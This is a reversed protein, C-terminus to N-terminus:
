PSTRSPRPTTASTGARPPRSSRPTSGSRRPTPSCGSACTSPKARARRDGVAGLRALLLLDPLDGGRGEARRRDIETRYRLVLGNETLEEKIARVTARCANTTPPCSASCRCSCRRPTSRTPTTTSASSAGSSRRRERPHGAKIEDALAQWPRCAGGLGRREALRAGRDLAVWCMLKSSVYHARSAARRGSARTPSAGSGRRRMRGPGRAGAVAARPHPRPEQLAPLRLGAGGRLRREPAPRYAGNGVRVPRAIRRLGQPPRAHAGRPREPRTVGTCSRCRATATATSTPSTSCSTTRRGTSVSPTCRGCRSRRTACGASATTGTANAARADGAALHDPRGRAGRDAHFHAGEAHAGLAAPLLAVPPRPLDGDALWNRWFHATRDLHGQAQEVTHPGGLGETWSLACFRREGETMTHRGHARNGEIGIRIDSFLRFAVGHERPTGPQPRATGPQTSARGPRVTPTSRACARRAPRSWRGARRADRRLRADARLRDRGAGDGPHMRGGARAPPRRRLRDAPAHPELRARQRALGRDDARRRVRLWGQPTM